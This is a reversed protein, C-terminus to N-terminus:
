PYGSLITQLGRGPPTEPITVTNYQAVDAVAHTYAFIYSRNHPGNRVAGTYTGTRHHMSWFSITIPQANATGWALRAIRYGEILQWVNAYDAAGLAAQATQVSTFLTGPFGSIISVLGGGAGMAMTGSFELKWGDCCYRAAVFVGGTGLEQSVEGGGNIQLGSYAMADFPAAFINQRAQQQQAATLAQAANNRVTATDFPHIHDQRAFNMSTGVAAVGDMIPAVTAPAGAGDTGAPGTPGQIGQIGQPGILSTGAPWIGGAKPGFMFHTTTNIYFNGNAGIGTTPDAAGYLVTNGAAGQPGVLSTGTPWSGAKPGFLYNTTTNIYFNGNAGVSSNPDAVGYLLTNGDKGAPGPISSPAGPAGPAGPPGQDGTVITEVDDPSLVVVPPLPDAISVDYSTSVEVKTM